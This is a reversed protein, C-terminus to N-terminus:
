SRLGCNIYVINIYVYYSMLTLHFTISLQYHIISQIEDAYDDIISARVVEM